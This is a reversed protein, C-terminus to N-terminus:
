AGNDTRENVHVRSQMKPYMDANVHVRSQAKPYMDGKDKQEENAIDWLFSFLESYQQTNM